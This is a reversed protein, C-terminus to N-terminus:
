IGAPCGWKLSGGTIEKLKQDIISDDESDLELQSDLMDYLQVWRKPISIFITPKIIKYDNM